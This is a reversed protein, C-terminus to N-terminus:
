LKDIILDKLEDIKKFLADFKEKDRDQDKELGTVRVELKAIDIKAKVYVAVISGFLVLSSIIEAYTM